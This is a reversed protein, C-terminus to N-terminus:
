IKYQEMANKQTLITNQSLKLSRSTKDIHTIEICNVDEPLLNKAHDPWEIFVWNSTYLYDEIGFNLAEEEDKIRYLDFHYISSDDLMYENVISFTPSSVDESSGLLKVLSKILTTKGAGIDGYFLITRSNVHSLIQKAVSEIADIPYTIDLIVSM